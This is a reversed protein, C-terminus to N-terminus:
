WFHIFINSWVQLPQLKVGERFVPDNYFYGDLYYMDLLSPNILLFENDAHGAGSGPMEPDLVFQFKNGYSVWNNEQHNYMPENSSINMRIARNVNGWPNIGESELWPLLLDTCVFLTPTARRNNRVLQQWSTFVNMAQNAAIAQGALNVANLEGTGPRANGYYTNANNLISRLGWVDNTNRGPIWNGTGVTGDASGLMLRNQWVMLQRLKERKEDEIIDVRRQTANGVLNIQEVSFELGVHSQSIPVYFDEYGGEKTYNYDANEGAFEVSNAGAMKYAGHLMPGSVSPNAGFKAGSVGPMLEMMYALFHASDQNNFWADNLYPDVYEFVPAGGTIRVTMDNAM